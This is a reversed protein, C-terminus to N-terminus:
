GYGKWTPGMYTFRQVTGFRERCHGEDNNSCKGGFVHVYDWWADVAPDDSVATRTALRPGTHADDLELGIYHVVIRDEYNADHGYGFVLYLHGKYHRYVGTPLDPLRLTM